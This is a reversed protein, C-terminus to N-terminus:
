IDSYGIIQGSLIYFVQNSLVYGGFSNKARYTCKAQWCKQGKYDGQVVNSWESYEVSGPDKLVVNLYDKVEKVSGDWASNIPRPGIEAVIKKRDEMMYELGEISADEPSMTKIESLGKEAESINWNNLAKETSAITTQLKAAKEEETLPKESGCGVITLSTIIIILAALIRINAM